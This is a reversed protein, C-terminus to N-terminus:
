RSREYAPPWVIIHGVARCKTCRWTRGIYTRDGFGARVLKQLDIMASRQCPYCFARITYGQEICDQFTTVSTPIM